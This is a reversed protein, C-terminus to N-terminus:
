GVAEAERLADVLRRRARAVRSRVTGIPVGTVVAVEAYPLGVLQTLAFAERQDAPLEHLLEALEIHGAADPEATRVPAVRSRRRHRAERRVADAVARRALLLAFVRM